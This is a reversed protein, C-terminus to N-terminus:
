DSAPGRRVREASRARTRKALGTLMRMVESCAALLLVDNGERLYRLDRALLLEATLESASGLAVQLLHAEDPCTRRGCSEAINAAISVAARRLQAVLGYREEPPFTATVGYVALALAHAKHWVRLNRFDNM